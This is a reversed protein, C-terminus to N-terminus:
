TGLIVNFQQSMCVSVPQEVPQTPCYFLLATLKLKVAAFRISHFGKQLATQNTIGNQLRAIGGNM